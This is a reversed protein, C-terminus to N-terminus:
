ILGATYECYFGGNDDFAELSNWQYFKQPKGLYFTQM